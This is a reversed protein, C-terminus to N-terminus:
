YEKEVELKDLHTLDIKAQYLGHLNCFSKVTLEKSTDIDKPVVFYIKAEKERLPNFEERRLLKNNQWIEIWKIYHNKEMPHPIRGIQIVIENEKNSNFSNGLKFYPLHMLEIDQPFLKNM